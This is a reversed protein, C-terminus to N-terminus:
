TFPPNSAMGRKRRSSRNFLTLKIFSVRPFIIYFLKSVLHNLKGDIAMIAFWADNVYTSSHLLTDYKDTNSEWDRSRCSIGARPAFMVGRHQFIYM